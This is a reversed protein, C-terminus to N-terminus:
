DGRIFPGYSPTSSGDMIQFFTFMEGYEGNFAVQSLVENERIAAMYNPACRSIADTMDLAIEDGYDLYTYVSIMQHGYFLDTFDGSEAMATFTASMESWPVFKYEAPIGIYDEAEALLGYMNEEGPVLISIRETVGTMPYSVVEPQAQLAPNPEPLDFVWEMEAANQCGCLALLLVFILLCYKFHHRM